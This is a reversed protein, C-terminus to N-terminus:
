PAGSGPGVGTPRQREMFAAAEEPTAIVEMPFFSHFENVSQIIPPEPRRYTPHRQQWSGGWGPQIRTPSKGAWSVTGRQAQQARSPSEGSAPAPQSEAELQGQTPYTVTPYYGGTSQWPMFYIHYTSSGPNPQFVVDGSVNEVRVVLVNGVAEGSAADVVIMGKAAPDADRRRWPITVFVADPGASADAAPSGAIEVVARHNGWSVGKDGAELHPEWNGAEFVVGEVVNSIPSSQLARGNRLVFRRLGGLPVSGPISVSGM